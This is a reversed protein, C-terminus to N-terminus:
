IFLYHSPSIRGTRTCLRSAEGNDQTLYLVAWMGQTSPVSSGGFSTKSPEIGLRPALLLFSYLYSHARAICLFFL